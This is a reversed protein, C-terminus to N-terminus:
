VPYKLLLNLLILLTFMVVALILIHRLDKLVYAYEQRFRDSSDVRTRGSQQGNSLQNSGNLSDTKGKHTRRTKKAM